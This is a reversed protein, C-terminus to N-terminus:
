KTSIVAVVSGDAGVTAAVRRLAPSSSLTESQFSGIANQLRRVGFRAPLASRRGETWPGARASGFPIGPQREALEPM